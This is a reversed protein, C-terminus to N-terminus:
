VLMDSRIWIVRLRIQCAPNADTSLSSGFFGSIRTSSISEANMVITSSNSSYLFATLLSYGDPATYTITWNNGFQSSGSVNKTYTTIKILGKIENMVTTENWVEEDYEGTTEANSKM